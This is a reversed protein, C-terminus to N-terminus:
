APVEVVEVPERATVPPAPEAPRRRFLDGAREYMGVLGRPAFAIVAIFLGGQLYLWGSAFNESFITKAYNVVLAGIVAGVLSARGGVAVGILLELSPVIGLLAPSIIGVVPVFLAGALGAMGASISFAVTKVVAPNYGLFRVRDEGDRVAILLRGYRSAVLQRAILFVVGLAAATVLYLSRQNTPDNLDYGLLQTINTLGNTGGTLGQQGVLLIVFAATLAQSLIAFQAGRVRQRFVLAGLGAAVAMPLLVAAPLAFWAHQFPKWVAPLKEVGSWSMFDPLNGAGAEQLKLFMGMCYGGIGFFFGQGLTLMGGYGWALDIGVAVIAFCLYKALLALRFGSLAAPAVVM